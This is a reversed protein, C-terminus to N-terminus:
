QNVGWLIELTWFFCAVLAFFVVIHCILRLWFIKVYDTFVTWIGVWAHFLLSMVFLLTGVRMWTQAFLAHWDLYGLQPHILVYGILGLSYVAMVIATVRQILWDHLGKRSVGLVSKVM